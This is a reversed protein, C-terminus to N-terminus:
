ISREARAIALNAKCLKGQILLLVSPCRAFLDFVEGCSCELLVYNRKYAFAFTQHNKSFFLKIFFLHCLLISMFFIGEFIM